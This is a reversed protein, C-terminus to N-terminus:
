MQCINCTQVHWDVIKKMDDFLYRRQIIQLTKRSGWHGATIADHCGALVEEIKPIPVLILDDFWWKGHHFTTNTLPPTDPIWPAFGAFPTDRSTYFDSWDEEHEASLIPTIACKLRPLADDHVTHRCTCKEM